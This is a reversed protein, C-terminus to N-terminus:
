KLSEVFVGREKMLVLRTKNGDDKSQRRREVVFFFRQDNLPEQTEEDFSM